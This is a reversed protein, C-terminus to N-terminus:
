RTSKRDEGGVPRIRVHRAPHRRAGCERRRHRRAATDRVRTWHAGAPLQVPLGLPDGAMGAVPRDHRAPEPRGPGRPRSPARGGRGRPALWRAPVAPLRATPLLDHDGRQLTSVGPALGPIQSDVKGTVGPKRGPDTFGRYQRDLTTGPLAIMCNVRIMRSPNMAPSIPAAATASQNRIMSTIAPRGKKVGAMSPEATNQPTCSGDMTTISYERMM